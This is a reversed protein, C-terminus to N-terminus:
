EDVAAFEQKERPALTPAEGPAVRDGTIAFSEGDTPARADLGMERAREAMGTSQEPDGHVVFVQGLERFEALWELIQQGRAHSSFDTPHGVELELTVDHWRTEREGGEYEEWPLRVQRVGDVIQRGISGPSQYGVLYVANMPNDAMRMLHKPSMAHDLMGSTSIYIAPESTEHRELSADTWLEEYPPSRYFLSGVFDKVGDDYYERYTDYIRTLRHATSSDSIIPVDRRLIGEQMHKHLLYILMQTKHLAFAPLLVSGGREIVANVRRGFEEFDIPEQGVPGYTSEILVADAEYHQAPRCVIPLHPPGMDGSFLIKRGDVWIEFMASGLIHGADTLRFAIGDREIRTNYPVAEILGMLGDADAQSYLPDDNGEFVELTVRCLDRTCDTCYVPGRFGRAYLLPLRGNHDAHAHTLFVARVERPDFPFEERNREEADGSDQMFSGCDVLFLGQSTELIHCSGSVLQTAGYFRIRPDSAASARSRCAAFGVGLTAAASGTLFQRRTTM